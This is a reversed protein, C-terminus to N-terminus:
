VLKKMALLEAKFATWFQCPLFSYIDVSALQYAYSVNESNVSSILISIHNLGFYLDGPKTM